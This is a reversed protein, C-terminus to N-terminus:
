MEFLTIYAYSELLTDGPLPNVVEPTTDSFIVNYTDGNEDTLVLLEGSSKLSWLDDVVQSATRTEFTGDLLRMKKTCEITYNFVRKDNDPSLVYRIIVDQVVPTTTGDNSNLVIKYELNKSKVTNVGTPFSAFFSSTNPTSNSGLYIFDGSLSTRYYIDLSDGTLLLDHKITIDAFLKEIDYLNADWISGQLFGDDTYTSLMKRIIFDSGGFYLNREKVWMTASYTSSVPLSTWETVGVTDYVFVNNNYNTRNMVILLLDDWVIMNVPDQFKDSGAGYKIGTGFKLGTGFITPGQTISATKLTEVKSNNYTKIMVRTSGYVVFFLRADYVELKTGIPDMGKYVMDLNAGDYYWLTGIGESSSVLNIPIFIQSAYVEPKKLYYVAESGTAFNKVLTVTSGNFYKLYNTYTIYLNTGWSKLYFCNITDAGDKQETWTTHDSTSHYWLGNAGTTAWLKGNHIELDYVVKGAGFDKATYTHVFEDTTYYVYQGEAWYHAGNYYIGAVISSAGTYLASGLKKSLKFNGHETVDINKSDKFKTVDELYKQQYGGIWTSQAFRQWRNMTSYSIDGTSFRSGFLSDPKQRASYKKVLFGKEGSSDAIKIHYRSNAAM